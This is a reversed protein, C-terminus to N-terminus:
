RQGAQNEQKQKESNHHRNCLPQWNGRDWFLSPDGHHPTEHDVVTAAQIIGDRKCFVCLPNERLFNSRERQWRAGYGRDSASQRKSSILRSM